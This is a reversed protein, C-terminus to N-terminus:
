KIVFNIKENTWSNSEYELHIKKSDEPVEYYVKGKIKKGASISDFASLSNEDLYAEDCAYDDAYCSFSWSGIGLDSDGLNEIEFEAYVYKNGSGPQLFENDSEYNGADLFSIKIDDDKFSEGVKFTTKNETKDEKKSEEKVETAEETKPTSEETDDGGSSLLVGIIVLVIVGILIKVLCGSGQKKRCQPCVKAGYPIETKCHKCIKTTPKEKSM